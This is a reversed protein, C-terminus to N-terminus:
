VPPLIGDARYRKLDKWRHHAWTWQEPYTLLMKELRRNLQLTTQVEYDAGREIEVEPQVLIKYHGPATRLCYAPILAAGTRKALRAPISTTSTPKGFFDIWLGDKGAWQDILIAMLHNNKLETLIPRVSQNKDVPNLHTSRRLDQVWKYIYPNRVPRVIVSCAYKRLYPLFGLLEWSGLHSIVFIIGEGKKFAADLHETGEFEFCKEADKILSPICILEFLAIVVNRFGERAIELKREASISNGYAIGLNELATKRRKPATLFLLDGIRKALWASFTIPVFNILGALGRVLLFEFYYWGPFFERKNERSKM